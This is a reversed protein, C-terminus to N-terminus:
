QSPPCQRKEMKEYRALDAKLRRLRSVPCGYHLEEQMLKIKDQMKECREALKEQKKEEKEARKDDRARVRLLAKEEKEFRKNIARAKREEERVVKAQTGQYEYPLVEQRQLVSECPSDRFEIDGTLGMCRYVEAFLPSALLLVGFGLGVRFGLLWGIRMKYNGILRRLVKLLWTNM